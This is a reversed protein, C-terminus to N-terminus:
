DVGQRHGTSSSGDVLLPRETTDATNTGQRETGFNLKNEDRRAVRNIAHRHLINGPASLKLAVRRHQQLIVYVLVRRGFSSTIVLIWHHSHSFDKVDTSYPETSDTGKYTKEHTESPYYHM